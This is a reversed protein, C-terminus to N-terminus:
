VAWLPSTWRPSLGNTGLDEKIWLEVNIYNQSANQVLQTQFLFPDYVHAAAGWVSDIQALTIMGLYGIPAFTSVNYITNVSVNVVVAPLYSSNLIFQGDFVGPSTETANAYYNDGAGIYQNVYLNQSDFWGYFWVYNIRKVFRNLIDFPIDYYDYQNSQNAGSFSIHDNSNNIYFYYDYGPIYNLYGFYNGSGVSLADGQINVNDVRCDEDPQNATCEFRIGFDLNNNAFNPLTFSKFIWSTNTVPTNGTEEATIWNIGDFWSTKFEDSIDLGALRRWYSFTINGYGVTSVNRQMISAPGTLNYQPRARATWNGFPPNLSSANWSDAGTATIIEWGNLNGSEFGDSFIPVASVFGIFLFGFLLIVFLRKM